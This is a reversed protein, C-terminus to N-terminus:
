AKVEPADLLDVLNLMEIRNVFEKSPKKWNVKLGNARVKRVFSLLLQLIATDVMEVTSADITIDKSVDIKKHLEAFLAKADNIALVAKLVLHNEHVVTSKKAEKKVPKTIEKQPVSKKGAQKKVPSKKPPTKKVAKKQSPHKKAVSKKSVSKKTSSKAM